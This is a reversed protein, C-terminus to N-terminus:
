QSSHYSAAGRSPHLERGNAGDPVLNVGSYDEDDSEIANEYTVQAEDSEQYTLMPIGAANSVNSLRRTMKRRPLSERDTSDDGFLVSTSSLNSFTRKKNSMLLQNVPHKSSTLMNETGHSTTEDGEGHSEDDDVPEVRISPRKGKGKGGKGYGYPLAPVDVDTEDDDQEYDKAASSDEEDDDDDEEAAGEMASQDGGRGDTHHTSGLATDPSASQRDSRHVNATTDHLLKRDQHNMGGGLDAMPLRAYPVHVM